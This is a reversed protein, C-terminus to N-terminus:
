VESWAIKDGVLIGNTTLRSQYLLFEVGSERAFKVEKSYEQDIESAVRFKAPESRNVLFFLVSRASKARVLGSLERLHKSGRKTVADPFAFSKGDFYTVSKVEVYCPLHHPGGSLLLDIRSDVGYRVERRLNEYGQLETIKGARIGEEVIGNPLQTNVGILGNEVEALEWTYALKRTKSSAPSLYVRSNEHFCSRMSGTNPCHATVVEGNELRVDAFFRKYRKILTGSILPNPFNM